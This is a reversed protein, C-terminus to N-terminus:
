TSVRHHYTKPVPCQDDLKPNEGGGGARAMNVGVGLGPDIIKPAIHHKSVCVPRSSRGGSLLTPFNSPGRNTPPTIPNGEVKALIVQRDNEELSHFERDDIFKESVEQNSFNPSSSQSFSLRLKVFLLRLSLAITVFIKRKKGTVKNQNDKHKKFM